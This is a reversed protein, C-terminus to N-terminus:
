SSRKSSRSLCDTGRCRSFLRHVRDADLSDIRGSQVHHRIRRRRSAGFGHHSRAGSQQASRREARDPPPDGRRRPCNRIGADRTRKRSAKGFFDRGSDFLNRGAFRHYPFGPRGPQRGPHSGPTGGGTAGRVAANWRRWSRDAFGHLRSAGRTESGTHRATGPLREDRFRM